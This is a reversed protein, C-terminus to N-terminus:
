FMEEIGCSHCRYGVVTEESCRTGWFEHHEHGILIDDDNLKVGCYECYVIENTGYLWDHKPYYLHDGDQYCGDSELTGNEICLRKLDDLSCGCCGCYKLECMM